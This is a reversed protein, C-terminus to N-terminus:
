EDEDDVWEFCYCLLRKELAHGDDAHDGETGCERGPRKMEKLETSKILLNM